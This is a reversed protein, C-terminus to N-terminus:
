DSYQESLKKSSCNKLRSYGTLTLKIDKQTSNLFCTHGVGRPRGWFTGDNSRWSMECSTGMPTEHVERNLVKSYKNKWYFVTISTYFVQLLCTAGRLTGSPGWSICSTQVKLRIELFTGPVHRIPQTRKKFNSM